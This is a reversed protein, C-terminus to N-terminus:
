ENYVAGKFAVSQHGIYKITLSRRVKKMTDITCVVKQMQRFDSSEKFIQFHFIMTHVFLLKCLFISTMSALRIHKSRAPLYNSSYNTVGVYIGVM